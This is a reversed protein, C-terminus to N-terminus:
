FCWYKQAKFKIELRKEIKNLIAHLNEGAQEVKMMKYCMKKESSNKLVFALSQIKKIISRNPHLLPFLDWFNEFLIVVAEAAKVSSNVTSFIAIKSIIDWLPKYKNLEASKDKLFDLISLSWFLDPWFWWRGSIKIYTNNRPVLFRLREERLYM